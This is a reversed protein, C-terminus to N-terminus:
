LKKLKNHDIRPFTLIFEAFENLKSRCTIEGKFDQMVMKCFSLGLGTGGVTKSFFKDFLRHIEGEPIGCGTDRFHLFHNNEQTELWIDIQGKGAKKTSYLANKILNFIVHTMCVKNGLFNFANEPHFHIVKKEEETLPYSSLAEEVCEIISQTSVDGWQSSYKLRMLLMDIILLSQKSAYELNRAAKKLAEVQVNSIPKVPLNIELARRHSELLDPLFKNIGGGMFSMSVLPTRLEHAMFGSIGHMIAIHEKQIVANKERFLFCSTIFLTVVGVLQWFYEPFVFNSDISTYLGFALVIGLCSLITLLLGEVLFGLFFLAASLGLHLLISQPNEFLAYTFFFPLTYGLTFLFYWGLYAKMKSSWQEALALGLSLVIAIIVIPINKIETTQYNWSIIGLLGSFFIGAIQGYLMAYDEMRKINQLLHIKAYSLYSSSMHTM